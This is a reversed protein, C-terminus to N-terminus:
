LYAMTIFLIVDQLLLWMKYYYDCRTIIIVDQLLWMKLLYMM